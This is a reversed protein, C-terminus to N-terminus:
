AAGEGMVHVAKIFQALCKLAEENESEAVIKGGHVYQNQPNQTVAQITFQCQFFKSTNTFFLNLTVTENEPLCDSENKVIFALGGESINHLSVKTDLGNNRVVYGQLIDNVLYRETKRREILGTHNVVGPIIRLETKKAM